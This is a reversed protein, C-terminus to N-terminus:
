VQDEINTEGKDLAKTERAFHAATKLKFARPFIDDDIRIVIGERPVKNKCLPENQEMYWEKCNHMEYLLNERWKNVDGGDKWLGFLNRLKGHYLKVVPECPLMWGKMAEAMQEVAEMDCEHCNGKADTVTVRYLYFAWEGYECGYDHDKQICQNTGPIWGVVEGYLTYGNPIYDKFKDFVMKHINVSYFNTITGDNFEENQIVRRTSYIKNYEKKPKYLHLKKLFRKFPTLEEYALVNAMVISTGDMKVSIYANMEPSLADMHFDMKSTDYHLQFQGPILRESKRLARKNAHKSRSQSDRATVPLPIIYKKAVLDSGIKDFVETGNWLIKRTEPYALEITEIPAIFGPSYTGRLKICRVRRNKEFFGKSDPDENLEPDKYLNNISLYKHSIQCELPFYVVFDGPKIDKGVVIKQSAVHALHLRDAGEIPEVSDVRCVRAAYNENFNESQKLVTKM